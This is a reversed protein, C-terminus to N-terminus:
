AGVGPIESAVDAYLENYAENLLPDIIECVPIDEIYGSNVHLGLDHVINADILVKLMGENESYNKIFCFLKAGTVFELNNKDGFYGLLDKNWEPLNITATAVPSGDLEELVLGPNADPYLVPRVTCQWDKFIVSPLSSNNM